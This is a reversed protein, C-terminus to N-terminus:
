KVRLSKFQARINDVFKKLELRFHRTKAYPQNMDTPIVEVVRFEQISVSVPSDNISQLTFWLQAKWLNGHHELLRANVIIRFKATDFSYIQQTNSNM